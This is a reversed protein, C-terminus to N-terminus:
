RLQNSTIPKSKLIKSRLKGSCIRNCVVVSSTKKRDTLIASQCQACEYTYQPKYGDYLTHYQKTGFQQQVYEFAAQLDPKRLVQVSYGFHNAVKTKRDVSDQAEYGKLEIITKGDALVFDPIYKIGNHELMGEFRTFQIGRSQAYIMWCLEYTSGCYVGRYYGSKSRGSGPRYGGHAM